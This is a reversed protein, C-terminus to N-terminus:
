RCADTWELRISEPCKPEQERKRRERSCNNTTKIRGQKNERYGLVDHPLM